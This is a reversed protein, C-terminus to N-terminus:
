DKEKAKKEAGAEGPDFQVELITHAPFLKYGSPVRGLLGELRAPKGELSTDKLLILTHQKGSKLTVEFDYPSGNKEDSEVHRLKQLKAVDIKVTTKFMLLNSLREQGRDMLYLPRLESVVHKTKEKDSATVVAPRGKPAAFAKPAPFQISKVSKPTGGQVKVAAKGLEGLDTEGELALKNVGTYKTWGVLTAEETGKEGMKLYTVTVKRTDLDYDIKKISAVPVLTLIGDKFTTSNEERFALAEPGTAEAGEGEKGKAKPRATADLWTLPRTGALFKWNSLKIEKGANDVVVLVGAATKKKTDGATLPDALTWALGCALLLISLIRFKM